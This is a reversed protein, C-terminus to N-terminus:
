RLVHRARAHIERTRVEGLHPDRPPSGRLEVSSGSPAGKKKKKVLMSDFNSLHYIYFTTAYYIIKGGLGLDVYNSNQM